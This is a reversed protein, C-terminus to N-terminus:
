SSAPGLHQHLGSTALPDFAVLGLFRGQARDARVTKQRIGPKGAETWPLAGMDFTSVRRPKSAPKRKAKM